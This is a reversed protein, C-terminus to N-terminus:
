LQPGEHLQGTLAMHIQKLENFAAGIRWPLSGRLVEEVATQVAEADAPPLTLQGAEGRKELEQRLFQLGDRPRFLFPSTKSRVTELKDDPALRIKCEKSMKGPELEGRSDGERADVHMDIINYAAAVSSAFHPHDDLLVHAPISTKRYHAPWRPDPNQDLYDLRALADHVEPSDPLKNIPTETEISASIDLERGTPEHQATREIFWVTKVGSTGRYLMFSEPPQEQLYASMSKWITAAPTVVRGIYDDWVAEQAATLLPEPPWAEHDASNQTTM